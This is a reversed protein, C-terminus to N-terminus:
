PSNPNPERAGPSSRPQAQQVIRTCTSFSFPGCYSGSGRIRIMVLSPELNSWSPVSLSLNAQSFTAYSTGSIWWVGSCSSSRESASACCRRISPSSGSRGWSRSWQISLLTVSQCSRMPSSAQSMRSSYMGAGASSSRSSLLIWRM